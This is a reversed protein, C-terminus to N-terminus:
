AFLGHLFWGGSNRFVWLLRGADDRAICYDRCIDGLGGAEGEDWWGSELREPRTLFRLPGQWVPRGGEERLRRPEPLLWLPRPGPVPLLARGGQGPERRESAGEPRHDARQGLVHVAGEGLRGRLRELCALTGEGAPGRDFLHGNSGALEVTRDARLVLLEVPAALVLRALHEHLLRGLRTEDATPEALHLPLETRRGDDHGLFFRCERVARQKGRLWGALASFLRRAAFALAEAHEVRAALELSREFREPFVFAPRLDPVEGWARALELVVATGLRRQLGSGPLARMAGLTALGFRELRSRVEQPWAPLTCPLVALAERAAPLEDHVRGDGAWALWTAGLPTPAVAWVASYGQGHCAALARDVLAQAGGFLRLCGGVELLLTAPPALSVQPTFGGAWCALEELAAEERAPSREHVALGPTFGLATALRQGQRVGAALAADNAAVVQGHQVM